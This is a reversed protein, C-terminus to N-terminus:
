EPSCRSHSVQRALEICTSLPATTKIAQPDTHTPTTPFGAQQLRQILTNKPPLDIKGRRGLEALPYYYPPLSAEAQM